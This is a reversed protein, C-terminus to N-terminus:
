EFTERGYELGYREAFIKSVEDEEWSDEDDEDLVFMTDESYDEFSKRFPNESIKIQKEDKDQNM